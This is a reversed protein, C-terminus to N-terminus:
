KIRFSSRLGHKKFSYINHKINSRNDKEIYWPSGKVKKKFVNEPIM